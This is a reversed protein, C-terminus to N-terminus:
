MYRTCEARVPWLSKVSRSGLNHANRELLMTELALLLLQNNPRSLRWRPGADAQHSQHLLDTRTSSTTPAANEGPRGDIQAILSNAPILMLYPELLAIGADAGECAKSGGNCSSASYRRAIPNAKLRVPESAISFRRFIV